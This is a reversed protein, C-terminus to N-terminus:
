FLDFFYTRELYYSAFKGFHVEDFVVKSPHGIKTFRTFIAFGTVIAMAFWYKYDPDKPVVNTKSDDEPEAIPAKEASKKFGAGGRKKLTQSSMTEPMSDVVPEICDSATAEEINFM